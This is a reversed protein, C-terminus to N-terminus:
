SDDVTDSYYFTDPNKLSEEITVSKNVWKTNSAAQSLIKVQNNLYDIAWQQNITLKNLADISQQVVECEDTNVLRKTFGDSSQYVLEVTNKLDESPRLVSKMTGEGSFFDPDTYVKTLYEASLPAKTDVKASIADIAASIAPVNEASMWVGSYTEVLETAPIISDLGSLASLGSLGEINLSALASVASIKNWMMVDGSTVCVCDDQEPPCCEDYWPVVAAHETDNWAHHRSHPWDPHYNADPWDPGYNYNHPYNHQKM